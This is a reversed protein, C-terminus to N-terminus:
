NNRFIQQYIVSRSNRVREGLEDYYKSNILADLVYPNYRTGAQSKFEEIMTEYPKSRRYNRSMFNTAAELCDAITVIDVLTRENCKTNDYWVPYGKTGDYWKHHGLAFRTFHGFKSDLDLLFSCNESHTKIIKFEHDTLKRFENNVIAQLQLKGVDHFQCGISLITNIEAKKALVEEVSTTGSIGILLEPCKEFVAQLIVSAYEEVLETHVLTHITLM